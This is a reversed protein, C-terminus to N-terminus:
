CVWPLCFTRKTASVTGRASSFCASYLLLKEIDTESLALVTGIMDSGVASGTVPGELASDWLSSLASLVLSSM